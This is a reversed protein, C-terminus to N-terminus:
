LATNALGRKKKEEELLDAIAAANGRAGLTEIISSRRNRKGKERVGLGITKKKKKRREEWGNVGAAPAYFQVTVLGGEKGMRRFCFGGFPTGKKKKRGKSLFPRVQSPAGLCAGALHRRKEGEEEKSLKFAGAKGKEEEEEQWYVFPTGMAM